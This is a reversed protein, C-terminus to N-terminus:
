MSKGGPSAYVQLSNIIGNMKGVMTSTQTSFGRSFIKGLGGRNFSLM